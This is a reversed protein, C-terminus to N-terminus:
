PQKEALKNIPRKEALVPQKEALKKATKKTAAKKAPRREALVPQKEALKKAAKKAAAKKAPRKAAKKAVAKKATKKAPPKNTERLQLEDLDQCLPSPTSCCKENLQQIDWQYDGCGDGNVADNLANVLEGDYEALDMMKDGCSESWWHGNCQACAEADQPPEEYQWAGDVQHWGGTALHQCEPASFEGIICGQYYTNSSVFSDPDECPTPTERDPECLTKPYSDGCCNKALHDIEESLEESCTGGSASVNQMEEAFEYMERVEDGCSRTVFTGSLEDCSERSQCYCRGNGMEDAFTMCGAEVCQQQGPFVLDCHGWAEAAADFSEDNACPTVVDAPEAFPECFTRPYSSCCKEAPYKIDDTLASEDDVMIGECSGGNSAVEEYSRVYKDMQPHVLSGCTQATWEGALASCTTHSMCHCMPEFEHDAYCGMSNCETESPQTEFVCMEMIPNSPQFDEVDVCVNELGFSANESGFSAREQKKSIFTKFHRHKRMLKVNKEYTMKAQLHKAKSAGSGVRASAHLKAQETNKQLASVGADGHDENGCVEDAAAFCVLVLPIWITLVM